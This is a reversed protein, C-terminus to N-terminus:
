KRVAIIAMQYLDLTDYTLQRIPSSIFLEFFLRQKERQRFSFAYDTPPVPVHDLYRAVGLNDIAGMAMVNAPERDAYSSIGRIYIDNESLAEGLSLPIFCWYIPNCDLFSRLASPCQASHQHLRM